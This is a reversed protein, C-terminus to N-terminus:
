ELIPKELVTYHAAEHGLGALRHQLAGVLVITILFVPGNWSWSLGWRARLEALFIAGGIVGALLVYERALCILNTINDVERLQMIQRQLNRDAFSVADRSGRNM